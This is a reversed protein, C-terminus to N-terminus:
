LMTIAPARSTSDQLLIDWLGMHMLLSPVFCKSEDLRFWKDQLEM